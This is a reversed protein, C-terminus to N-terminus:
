AVDLNAEIVSKLLTETAAEDVGGVMVINGDLAYMGVKTQTTVYAVRQGLITSFTARGTANAAAEFVERTMRIGRIEMVFAAGVLTGKRRIERGNMVAELHTGAFDISFSATLAKNAPNAVLEYPAGILLGSALDTEPKPEATPSAVPTPSPTATPSPTPRRTPTPPATPPLDLTALPGPTAPAAAASCGGVVLFAVIAVIAVSILRHPRSASTPM